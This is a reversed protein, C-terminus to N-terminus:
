DDNSLMRSVRFAASKARSYMEGAIFVLRYNCRKLTKKEQRFVKTKLNKQTELVNFTTINWLESSNPPTPHRIETEDLTSSFTISFKGADFCKYHKEDTTEFDGGFTGFYQWRDWGFSYGCFHHACHNFDM